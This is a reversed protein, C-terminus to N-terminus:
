ELFGTNRGAVHWRVNARSMRCFTDNASSRSLTRRNVYSTRLHVPRNAFPLPVVHPKKKSGRALTRKRARRTNKADAMHRDPSSKREELLAKAHLQQVSRGVTKRHRGRTLRNQSLGGRHFPSREIKFPCRCSLVQKSSSRNSNGCGLRKCITDNNRRDCRQAFAVWIKM